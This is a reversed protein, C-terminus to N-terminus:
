AAQEEHDAAAVLEAYRGGRALLEAHTGAEVIRGADMVVIRDARLVTALGGWTLGGIVSQAAYAAWLGGLLGTQRGPGM